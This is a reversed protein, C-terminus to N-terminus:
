VLFFHQELAVRGYISVQTMDFAVGPQKTLQSLVASEGNLMMMSLGDPKNRVLQNLATLGGGGPRNEVVVTAGSLREFHPALMRAYLDYGGGPSFGVYFRVTEGKLFTGRERSHAAAIGASGFIGALLGFGLVAGRSVAHHRTRALM